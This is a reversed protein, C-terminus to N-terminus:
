LRRELGMMARLCVEQWDSGGQVDRVTLWSSTGRSGASGFVCHGEGTRGGDLSEEFAKCGCANTVGGDEPELLGGFHSRKIGARSRLEAAV